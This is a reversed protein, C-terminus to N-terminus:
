NGDLILVRPLARKKSQKRQSFNQCILLDNASSIFLPFKDTLDTKASWDKWRKGKKTQTRPYINHMELMGGGEGKLEDTETKM